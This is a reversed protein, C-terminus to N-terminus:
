PGMTIIEQLVVYEADYDIELCLRARIVISGYGIYIQSVILSNDFEDSIVILRSGWEVYILILM